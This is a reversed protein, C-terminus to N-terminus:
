NLPIFAVFPRRVSTNVDRVSDDDGFFDIESVRIRMKTSSSLAAPLTVLGGPTSGARVNDSTPGWEVTTSGPFSAELRVPDGVNVWSLDGQLFQHPDQVQVNVVMASTHVSGVGGTSYVQPAYPNDGDRMYQEGGSANYLTTPSRWGQYGPGVVTVYVSKETGDAGNQLVVVLRDAVPQAITATTLPSVEIGPESYPQFRVLSLRVFYGPPPLVTEGSSAVQGPLVQVDAYWTQTLEDYHVEYPWINYTNALDTDEVLNLQPPSSYLSPRGPVVPVEALNGFAPPIVPWPRDTTENYTIPDLGMMTYLPYQQEPTPATPTFTPTVVGLLEGAGSTFWPRELYVRLFGGDRQLEIGSAIDGAPGSFSWAPTIRAVKPAAPRASALVEVPVGPGTKTVTPQFDIKLGVHASPSPNKLYAFEGTLADAAYDSAPLPTPDGARYVVLTELNIGLKSIQKPVKGTFTGRYSTEFMEAFRSTGTVSYTILHHKTDGIFHTAGNAQGFAFSTVPATVTLPFSEPGIPTPDPVALRFAPGTVLQNFSHPVAPNSNPDAPNDYPDIWDAHFDLASTSNEDVLFDADELSVSTDGLARPDTTPNRLQPAIVPTRVAHVLRLVKFPSLQWVQGNTVWTDFDAPLNGAGGVEHAIWEYIGMSGIAAPTLASSVWVVAVEAPPLTVTLTSAVTDTAPAFSHSRTEGGEVALLVPNLTPWPGGSWPAVFRDDSPEDPLGVFGVGASLPDPLWPTVPVADPAFFPVNQHGADLEYGDVTALVGDALGPTSTTTDGALLEYTALSGDPAEAPNPPSGLSFGDFMGHEECRGETAKPPFLWRGNAPIPNVQDDLLVVLLTSEAINLDAVAAFMPPPVPEYRYHTVPGIATSADTSAVPPGNGALDAGRARLLYSNGFRLKPLPYPNPGSNGINTPLFTASFQPLNVGMFGPAPAPNGNPTQPQDDLGVPSGPRQVSLGWGPWRLVGEHVHIEPSPTGLTGAQQSTGPVVFGEDVATFTIPPTSSGSSPTGLGYSGGRGNLSRWTAAEGDSQPFVDFRHGRVLNDAYLLPPPNASSELHAELATNLATQKTLLEPLGSGPVGWATWIVELGSSRLAPVTLASEFYTPGIAQESFSKSTSWFDQVSNLTRSLTLLRDGALDVDLDTVFFRSSDALDLMGNRYDLGLPQAQFVTSSLNIATLPSVNHTTGTFQSHWTPTVSVYGPPVNSTEVPFPVVLDFVLGFRRLVVPYSGLHSVAAHFDIVPLPTSYNPDPGSTPTTQPYAHFRELHQIPTLQPANADDIYALELLAQYLTALEGTLNNGLVPLGRGRSQAQLIPLSTPSLSGLTGYIAQVQEAVDRAGFTLFPGGSLDEYAYPTVPMTTADFVAAWGAPDLATSSPAATADIPAIGEFTVTFSLAPGPTSGLTDPWNIWDTFSELFLSSGGTLTASLQPAVFVSLALDGDDTVGNPLATWVIVQTLDSVGM